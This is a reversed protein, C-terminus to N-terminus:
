SLKKNLYNEWKKAKEKDMQPTNSLRYKIGMKSYKNVGLTHYPLIEFRKINGISKTYEFLNNIYELNDNIGPVIVARIWIDINHNKLIDLFENFLAIERQTILKYIQSDFHKIDLLILDTYRLIEDYCPRYVKDGCHGIGSTDIATNIKYYKCKKLIDLLFEPQLLPEGGSFTVGGGTADYYPKFKLLKSILNKTSLINNPATSWTDPNHCFACRLNCGQMFVVSRIGPGDVSGMSEFSHINGIVESNLVDIGVLGGVDGM